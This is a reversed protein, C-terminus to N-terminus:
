ASALDGTVEWEDAAVKIIAITSGQVRTKAVTSAPLDFTSTGAVTVQGSGVQRISFSTGIPFAYTADSPVTVTVGASSNMRIHSNNTLANPISYSTTQTVVNLLETTSLVGSGDISLGSGVKVGGLVSSSATQLTYTPPLAWAGDGRLFKTTDATGVGLHSVPIVGTIIDAADHTHHPVGAALTALITNVQDRLYTTRNALQQAQTNAPGGTGGLVRTTIDVQFVSPEWQSVEVLNAM